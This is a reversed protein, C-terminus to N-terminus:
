DRMAVQRAEQPPQWVGFASLGAIGFLALVMAAIVALSQKVARREELSMGDHVRLHRQGTDLETWRTDGRRTADQMTDM